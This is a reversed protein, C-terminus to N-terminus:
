RRRRVAWVSFGLGIILLPLLNVSFFMIGYEQMETLPLRDGTKPPPRITIKDEDGVLWNVANVFLDNNGNMSSFRNNIFHYDGIVVMRAEDAIKGPHAATKKTVAVAIPVPGPVDEDDREMTESDRYNIEGWSTPGTQVLTTVTLNALGVRPQVSRARYFMAFSKGMVNTIPHPEFRQVIPADADFGSAKAAPNPDLVLDDGVDVGYPRFVRDLKNDTGPELLTMVRGGKDLFVKLAEVENAVLAGRAGALIVVSADKPVDEKDILTLAKVEYGENRLLVAAIGFGEESREDSISPEEHGAIFYAKRTDKKAVQIIANTMAEETPTKVKTYRDSKKDYVVIRASRSNMEFKEVLKSPAQDPNIFKVKLRETHMSYLGIAQTLMNRTNEEPRYFGYVTVESDLDQAIKISQPHLSFLKDRTLDWEQPNQAALYNIGTVGALVGVAVVVELLVFPASRSGAARTLSKRNTLGYFFVSVAGFAVNGIALPSVGPDIMYLVAGFVIATLGIVGFVLGITQLAGQQDLAGEASRAPAQNTPSSKESSM